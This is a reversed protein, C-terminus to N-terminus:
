SARIRQKEGVQIGVFNFPVVGVSCALFLSTARLFEEHLNVGYIKSKNLNM